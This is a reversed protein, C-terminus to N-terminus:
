QADQGRDAPPQFRFYAFDAYTGPTAAPEGIAFLGVNAGIWRGARAQFTRRARGSM